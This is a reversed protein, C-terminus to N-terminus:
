EDPEARSLISAATAAEDADWHVAVLRGLGDVIRYQVVKLSAGLYVPFRIVRHTKQESSPM